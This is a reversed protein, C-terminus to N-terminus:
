KKSAPKPVPKTDQLQQAARHQESALSADHALQVTTRRDEAARDQAGQAVDVQLKQQETSADLQMGVAAQELAKDAQGEKMQEILVATQNDERNMQMDAQIQAQKDQSVMQAVQTRGQAAIQQAQAPDPKKEEQKPPASQAMKIAEDLVSEIDESGRFSAVVWQIIKLLYPLAQPYMEAMGASQSFFQGIATVLETRKEREANYDALSLQEESIRIRYEAHRFQKLLQIAQEAYQASETQMIQSVEIITEPQWHLCIIECKLHLLECVFKAVDQQNLQLRVSSYQAKLKQAGLTERPNSAGRQIDSISTLEYIQGILSSRQVNLETLVKAIVDVPFWDVQGALGKKEVFSEWNSVAIMNFEGGSLLQKLEVNSADYVGVVRLAKTLIAIRANLCDLEEYQDQAMTYDARPLFDNTTHTAMLPKPCPYFNELKLFDDKKELVEEMAKHVWYVSNSDECWLEFIEARGKTFGVPLRAGDKGKSKAADEILKWQEPTWRKLFKRKRMWIRRGLWWKENWTRVPSYLFDRWHVYDTPADERVIKLGEPIAEGTTPDTSAPIKETEAEYRLWAQGLGPILRDDVAQQIAEHIGSTDKEFDFQLIRQLIMAATRAVDDKADDHARSVSPKPPTAYLASKIIQVNAWFINYKKLSVEEQGIKSGNRRDLYRDVIDDAANRWKEDLRKECAEIETVWWKQSYEPAAENEEM